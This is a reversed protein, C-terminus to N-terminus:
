SLRPIDRDWKSFWSFYLDRGSGVCHLRRAWAICVLLIHCHGDDFIDTSNLNQAAGCTGTTQM